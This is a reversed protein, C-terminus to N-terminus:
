RPRRRALPDAILVEDSLVEGTIEDTWYTGAELRGLAAEVAALDAEIADLDVVGDTVGVVNDGLHNSSSMPDCYGATAQEVMGVGKGGNSPEAGLHWVKM